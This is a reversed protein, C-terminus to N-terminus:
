LVITSRLAIETGLPYILGTLFADNIGQPECPSDGPGSRHNARSDPRPPRRPAVQPCRRDALTAQSRSRPPSPCDRYGLDSQPSRPPDFDSNLDLLPRRTPEFHFSQVYFLCQKNPRQAPRKYAPQMDSMAFQPAVGLSPNGVDEPSLRMQRNPGQNRTTEPM